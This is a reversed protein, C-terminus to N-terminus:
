EQKESIPDGPPSRIGEAVTDSVLLLDLNGDLIESARNSERPPDFNRAREYPDLIYHRVRHAPSKEGDLSVQAFSTHRRKKPDFPSIRTVSHVGAEHQLAPRANDDLDLEWKLRPEDTPHICFLWGNKEAWKAYMRALMGIWASSEETPNATITIRMVKAGLDRVGHDGNSREDRAGEELSEIVRGLAPEGTLSLRAPRGRMQDMAGRSFPIDLRLPDIALGRFFKPEGAVRSLVVGSVGGGRWLAAPM